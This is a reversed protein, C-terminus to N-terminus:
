KPAPGEVVKNSPIVKKLSSQSGGKEYNRAVRGDVGGGTEQDPSACDCTDPQHGATPGFFTGKASGFDVGAESFKDAFFGQKKVNYKADDTPTSDANGSTSTAVVQGANVQGATHLMRADADPPAIVVGQLFIAAAAVTATAHRTNFAAKVPVVPGGESRMLNSCFGDATVLMCSVISVSIKYNVM